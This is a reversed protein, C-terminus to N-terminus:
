TYAYYFVLVVSHHAQLEDTLTVTNGQDDLLSFDPALDFHPSIAEPEVGGPAFLRTVTSCALSACVLVGIM